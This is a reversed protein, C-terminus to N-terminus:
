STLNQKHLFQKIRVAIEEGHTELAFHGTDLMHMEVNKLDRSYPVADEPPLIFDNKGWVILTPPQYKRFFAQFEPYLPVNTRYDYFLDMQIERNGPRDLGAQDVLWATPDLLMRDAVGNQYQWQTSKLDVLFELAQRNERRSDAWYKKIPEWFELLGVINATVTSNPLTPVVTSAGASVGWVQLRALPWLGLAKGWGAQRSSPFTPTAGIVECSGSDQGEWASEFGDISSREGSELPPIFSWCDERESLM